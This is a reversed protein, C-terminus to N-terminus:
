HRRARAHAVNVVAIGIWAVITAVTGGFDGLRQAVLAFVVGLGISGLAIIITVSDHFMSSAQHSLRHEVQADFRELLSDTLAQEYDDGLEARAAVTARLDDPTVPPAPTTPVARSLVLDCRSKM